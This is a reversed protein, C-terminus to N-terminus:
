SLRHLRIKKKVDPRERESAQRSKKKRRLNLAKLVKCVTPISAKKGTLEEIKNAIENLTLDPAKKVISRIVPHDEQTLIPSKGKQKGPVLHGETYYKKILRSVTPQRINFRDAIQEQTEGDEHATIICARIEMPVPAVM